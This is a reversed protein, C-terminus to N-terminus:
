SCKKSYMEYSADFPRPDLSVDINDDVWVTVQCVRSFTTKSVSVISIKIRQRSKIIFM